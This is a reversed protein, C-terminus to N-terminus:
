RNGPRHFSFATLMKPPECISKQDGGGAAELSMTSSKKTMPSGWKFGAPLTDQPNLVSHSSPYENVKDKYQARYKKEFFAVHPSAPRPKPAVYIDASSRLTEEDDLAMFGGGKKKKPAVKVEKKETSSTESKSPQNVTTM